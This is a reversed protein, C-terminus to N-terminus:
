TKFFRFDFYKDFKEIKNNLNNINLKKKLSNLKEKKLNIIKDLSNSEM